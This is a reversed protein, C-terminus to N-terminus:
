ISETSSLMTRRENIKRRYSIAESLHQTQIKDSNSLDAITRAVKLIRHISRGSLGLKTTASQLLTKDKDNLQCFQEIDGTKLESNSVSNRELQKNFAAIVRQRVTLSNESSSDKTQNIIADPINHVEIVMDIRDMLPGSIKHQYRNIQEETCRCRGSKDGLYGCPCPNMAAILQFNAPYEVQKAARSIVIRGSELPERLVELVKRDFEPLEDLFLIGNHALSIEGPRPHSGGGVLAVASASHHPSRIIRQRWFQSSFGNRSISAIAASELAQIDTMPPMITPLREALMTKGSGPPGTMLLNHGGAAAIELARKAHEHGYIDDLDTEYSSSPNTQERQHEQLPKTGSIHACVELLHSAPKCITDEVLAAEDANKMPVILSRQSKKMALSVPLVGTVPRLDGTLSLEGIVEHGKIGTEPIQGSAILIGIAIPLDFRGGEKPLDAPALNITIRSLPFDFQNNLIASRVREKSEKVTTEPLGVISFSPLGRSLHVEVTVLPANIGDQARSYIVAVSM